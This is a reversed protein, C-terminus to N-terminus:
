RWLLVRRGKGYGLEDKYRGIHKKTRKIIKFIKNNKHIKNFKLNM